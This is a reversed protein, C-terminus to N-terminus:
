MDGWLLSTSIGRELGWHLISSLLITFLEHNNSGGNPIWHTHTGAPYPYPYLNMGTPV